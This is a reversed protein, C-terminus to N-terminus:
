SEHEVKKLSNFYQQKDGTTIYAQIAADERSNKKELWEDYPLLPNPPKTKRPKPITDPHPERTDANIVEGTFFNFLYGQLDSPSLFTDSKCKPCFEYEEDEEQETALSIWPIKCKSCYYSM